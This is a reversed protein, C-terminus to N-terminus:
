STKLLRQRLLDLAQKASREMIIDPHGAFRVAVAVSDDPTALGLWLRADPDRAREMNIPGVALGYTAPNQIRSQKAADLLQSELLHDADETDGEGNQLRPLVLGGTYCRGEADSERLWRALVGPTGLEVTSLTENRSALLRIVSDQIEDDEEGYVISGLCEHIQDITPQMAKRCEAENKGRATVRLTITAKHVTIGVSPERGREILDPLRREMDSEGCGFCKLRHHIIVQDGFGAEILQPRVTADWMERMEAPVGPLFFIRSERNDAPVTLDIGPATGHPNPIIRSGEPFMAQVQNREPMDRGRSEFRHRIYTLSAEDLQLPLGTADALAQRTLDDATPGLGGTGIVVDARALAIQIAAALAALDDSVTTHFGVPIGISGLQQSLWASNTDVRQGSTLEDGIAM